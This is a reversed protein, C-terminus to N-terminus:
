PVACCLMTCHPVTYYWVKLFEPAKHQKEALDLNLLEFDSLGLEKMYRCHLQDFLFPGPAALRRPSDTPPHTPPRGPPPPPNPSFPTSPTLTTGAPSHPPVKWLM